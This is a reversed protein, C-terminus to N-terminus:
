GSTYKLERVLMLSPRLLENQKILEDVIEIEPRTKMSSHYNGLDTEYYLHYIM